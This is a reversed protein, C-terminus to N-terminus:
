GGEGAEHLPIRAADDRRKRLHTCATARLSLACSIGSLSPSHLLEHHERMNAFGIRSFKAQRAVRPATEGEQRIRRFSALRQDPPVFGVESRASRLWGRIQRFSAVPLASM